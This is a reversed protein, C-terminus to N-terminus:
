IRAELIAQRHFYAPHFGCRRNWALKLTLHFVNFDYYVSVSQFILLGSVTEKM